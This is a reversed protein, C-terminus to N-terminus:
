DRTRSAETNNHTPSRENSPDREWIRVSAQLHNLNRGAHVAAAGDALPHPKVQRLPHQRHAPAAAARLPWM